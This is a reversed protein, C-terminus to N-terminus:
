KEKKQKTSSSSSLENGKKWQYTGEFVERYPPDKTEGVSATWIRQITKLKRHSPLWLRECKIPEVSKQVFNNEHFLHKWRDIQINQTEQKRDEDLEYAPTKLRNYHRDPSYPLITGKLASSSSPHDDAFTVTNKLVESHQSGESSKNIILDTLRDTLSDRSASKKDITKEAKPNNKM